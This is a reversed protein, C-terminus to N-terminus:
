VSLDYWPILESKSSGDRRDDKFGIESASKCSKSDGSWTLSFGLDLLGVCANSAGQIYAGAKDSDTSVCFLMTDYVSVPCLM